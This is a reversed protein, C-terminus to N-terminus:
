TTCSNHAFHCVCAIESNVELDSLRQSPKENANARVLLSLLDKEGELGKRLADMKEQVMKDAM